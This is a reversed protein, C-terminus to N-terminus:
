KHKYFRYTWSRSKFVDYYDTFSSINGKHIPISCWHITYIFIFFCENPLLRTHTHCVCREIIDSQCWVCRGKEKKEMGVQTWVCVCEPKLSWAEPKLSWAELKQSRAEPKQSSESRYQTRGDWSTDVCMVCVWMRARERAREEITGAQAQRAVGGMEVQTWM